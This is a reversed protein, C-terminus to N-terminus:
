DIRHAANMRAAVGHGDASEALWQWSTRIGEVLPTTASWGTALALRSCDLATASVDLGRAPRQQLLPARGVVTAILELVDALPTAVGSGVNFAGCADRALGAAVTADAADEAFVFDRRAGLDGFVAIPNGDALARSWAAVVGQGRRGTQGPGYVNSYRLTTVAFGYRRAFFRAYRETVVSNVGHMSIPELPHDEPTPLVEPEGYITGGSSALVIRRTSTQRMLDLVTLATLVSDLTSSTLNRDAHSPTSAGAMFFVVDAADIESALQETPAVVSEVVRISAGATIRERVM